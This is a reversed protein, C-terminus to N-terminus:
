NGELIRSKLEPHNVMGNIDNSVFRIHVTM